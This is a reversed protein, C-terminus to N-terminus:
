SVVSLRSVEATSFLESANEQSLRHLFIHRAMDESILQYTNEADADLFPNCFSYIFEDTFTKYVVHFNHQEDRMMKIAKFLSGFSKGCTTKLTVTPSTTFNAPM